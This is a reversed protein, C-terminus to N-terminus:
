AKADVARRAHAISAEIEKAIDALERVIEMAEEPDDSAELRSRLEELRQLLGEAHQLSDEASMEDRRNRMPPASPPAASGRRRLGAGCATGARERGTPCSRM